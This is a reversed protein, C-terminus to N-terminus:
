SLQQIKLRIEAIEKQLRKKQIKKALRKREEPTRAISIQQSIINIQQDYDEPTM